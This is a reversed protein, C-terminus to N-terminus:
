PTQASEGDMLWWEAIDPSHKVRWHIDDRGDGNYDGTEFAEWRLSRKHSSRARAYVGNYPDIVIFWILTNATTVDRWFVDDFGDGDYDGAALVQWTATPM